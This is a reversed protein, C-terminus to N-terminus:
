NWFYEFKKKEKSFLYQDILQDQFIMLLETFLKINEFKKQSLIINRLFDEILDIKQMIDNYDFREGVVLLNEM